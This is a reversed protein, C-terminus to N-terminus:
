KVSVYPLARSATDEASSHNAADYQEFEAQEASDVACAVSILAFM